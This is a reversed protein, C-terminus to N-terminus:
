SVVQNLEALLQALDLNCQEAVVQLPEFLLECCICIGVQDDYSKIVAETAPYESLLDLLTMEAHVPGTNEMAM